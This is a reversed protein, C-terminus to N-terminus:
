EHRVTANRILLLYYCVKRRPRLLPISDISPTCFINSNKRAGFIIGRAQHTYYSIIKNHANHLIKLM